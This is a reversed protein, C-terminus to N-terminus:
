VIEVDHPHSERLGANTIRHFNTDQQHDKVTAAGTYSMGKRLAKEDKKVVDVVSGRFPVETEVGEALPDDSGYRERAAASEKLASPSGMGRYVKVQAGNPKQIIEGPSEKTGALRGGMMVSDGGAAIAVPIDGRNVIGGDACIPVGSGRIARACEYVATVQPTGIGTEVRTTCISGPGQGVKIGDAGAAVLLRASEPNSINGVVVDLDPFESKLNELATIAFKSDGQATDIVAVDLYKYMERVREIGMEDTPIAAATRLRGNKDLNFESRDEELKEKVDSFLYLGALTEDDNVLPLMTKKHAKMIQFADQLSTGNPASVIDSIPTMVDEVSDQVSDSFRFSGQTLLGLLKKEENVIPFTHFPLKHKEITELVKELTIGPAFTVPTDIFENLAFKVRRVEAKQHEIDLGAHIVGLGGLKAMAIAMKSETVTDMAASVIPTKLEVNRSFYSGLNIDAASVESPGAELRVDDFTLALRQSRLVDFFAEKEPNVQEQNVM